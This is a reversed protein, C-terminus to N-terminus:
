VFWLHHYQARDWDMCYYITRLHEPLVAMKRLSICCGPDFVQEFLVIRGPSLLYTM